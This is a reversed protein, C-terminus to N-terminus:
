MIVCPDAIHLSHRIKWFPRIAMDLSSLDSPFGDRTTELLLSLQPDSETERSIESWSISVLGVTDQTIAANMACEIKDNETCLAFSAVEAYSSCPQRSIVDAVYNSKGPMHAIKLRWFLTRQKLGFLRTNSIEDLTRDGLVKVRPTHDTVVLLDDCGQELGWAM